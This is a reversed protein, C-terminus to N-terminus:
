PIPKVKKEWGYKVSKNQKIEFRRIEHMILNTRHSFYSFIGHM